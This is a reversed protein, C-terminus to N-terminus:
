QLRKKKALKAEANDIQVQQGSVIKCAKNKTNIYDPITFSYMLM